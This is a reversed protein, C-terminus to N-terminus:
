LKNATESTFFQSWNWMPFIPAQFFFLALIYFLFEVGWSHQGWFQIGLYDQKM